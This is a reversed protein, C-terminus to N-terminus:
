LGTGIPVITYTSTPVEIEGALVAKSCFLIEISFKTQSLVYFLLFKELERLDIPERTASISLVLFEFTPIEFRDSLLM